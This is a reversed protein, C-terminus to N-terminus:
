GNGERKLIKLFKDEKKIEQPAQPTLDTLQKIAGMLNKIMKNYISAEPSEKTGFQNEGNQYESVAGNKNIDDQLDQLTIEMFAANEILSIVKKMTQEPMDKYLKKLRGIEKKIKQEKTLNKDKM